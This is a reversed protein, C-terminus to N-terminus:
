FQYELLADEIFELRQAKLFISYSNTADLESKKLMTNFINVSGNLIFTAEDM